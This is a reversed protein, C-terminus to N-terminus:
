LVSAVLVMKFTSSHKVIQVWLLILVAITASNMGVNDFVLFQKIMTKLKQISFTGGSNSSGADDLSPMKESASYAIGLILVAVVLLTKRFDQVEKESLKGVLLPNLFPMTEGKLIRTMVLFISLTKEKMSKEQKEAISTQMYYERLAMKYTTMSQKNKLYPNSGCYRLLAYVVQSHGHLSALHLPMNGDEDMKNVVEDMTMNTEPIEIIAKVMNAHGNKAAFHLINCGNDTVFLSPCRWEKLLEVIVNLHGNKCALHILYLTEKNKKLSSYGNVELLYCVGSPLSRLIYELVDTNGMEIALSLPSKDEINKCCSLKPDLSVLFYAIAVLSNIINTKITDDIALTPNSLFYSHAMTLSSGAISTRWVNVRGLMFLAEHLATNGMANEMRLLDVPAQSTSPIHKAFDVLATATNLKGARAACHLPTDGQNNTKNILFPYYQAIKATIEGHGSKAAVHLLSSGDTLVKEFIHHLDQKPIDSFLFDDINGRIAAEFYAPDLVEEM